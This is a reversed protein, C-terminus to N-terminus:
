VPFCRALKTTGQSSVIGAGLMSLGILGCYDFCGIITFPLLPCSRHVTALRFDNGNTGTKIWDTERTMRTNMNGFVFKICTIAAKSYVVRIGRLDEHESVPLVIESAFSTYGLEDSVLVKSEGVQHLLRVGSISMGGGVSTKTVGIGRLRYDRSVWPLRRWSHIRTSSGYLGDLQPKVPQVYSVDSRRLQWKTDLDATVSEWDAMNVPFGQLTRCILDRVGNLGKWVRLRENAHGSFSGVDWYSSEWRPRSLPPMSFCLARWDPITDTNAPVAYPYDILFHMKWYSAPLQDLTSVAAICKSALRLNPLDLFRVFPLICLLLERPLRSFIDYRRSYPLPSRRPGSKRKTSRTTATTHRRTLKTDSPESGRTLFESIAQELNGIMIGNAQLIDAFARFRLPEAGFSLHTCGMVPRLNHRLHGTSKQTLCYLIRALGTALFTDEVSGSVGFRTTFIEWCSGHLPFAWQKSIPDLGLKVLRQSAVTSLESASERAEEETDSVYIVFASDRCAEIEGVWALSAKEEPEQKWIVLRM